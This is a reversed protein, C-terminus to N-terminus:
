SSCCTASSWSCRLARGPEQGAVLTAAPLLVLSLVLADRARL